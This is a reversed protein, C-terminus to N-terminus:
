AMDLKTNDISYNGTLQLIILSKVQKGQYDHGFYLCSEAAFNTHYKRKGTEKNTIGVLAPDFWVINDICCKQKRGRGQSELKVRNLGPTKLSGGM